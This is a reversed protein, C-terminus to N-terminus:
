NQDTGLRCDICDLVGSFRSWFTDFGLPRWDLVALAVVSYLEIALVATYQYNFSYPTGGDSPQIAIPISGQKDAMFGVDFGIPSPTADFHEPVELKYLNVDCSKPKYPFILNIAANRRVLLREAPHITVVCSDGTSSCFTISTRNAKRHGFTDRFVFFAVFSFGCSLILFRLAQQIVKRM